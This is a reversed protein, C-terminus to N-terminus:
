RLAAGGHPAVPGNSRRRGRGLRSPRSRANAGRLEVNSLKATRITKMIPNRDGRQWATRLRVGTRRGDSSDAQRRLGAPIPGDARTQSIAFSGFATPRFGLCAQHTGRCASLCASASRRAIAGRGHRLRHAISWNAQHARHFSQGGFMGARRFNFSSVSSSLFWVSM